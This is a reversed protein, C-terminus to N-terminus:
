RWDGSLVFGAWYRPPTRAPKSGGRAPEVDLGRVEGGGLAEPHDLLWRQAERLAELKPLNRDWLNAYFRQMLLSTARDPVKWLSTVTTRAGAIQFARQLGLVGEGGATEGLGTECASLVALEVERLDLSAVELATLIGDDGDPEPPTNAGSLALGSLLGPHFGVAQDPEGFFRGERRRGLASLLGAPAFFGHTAIHVWRHRAAGTRLAGETAAGRRLMSIRGDPYRKAFNKCLSEIEGTTSRL